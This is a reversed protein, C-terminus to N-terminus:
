GRGDVRKSPLITYPEHKFVAVVAVGAISLWVVLSVGLSRVM